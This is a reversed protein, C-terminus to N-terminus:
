LSLACVPQRPILIIHGFPRMRPHFASFKRLGTNLVKKHDVAGKSRVPVVCVQEICIDSGYIM